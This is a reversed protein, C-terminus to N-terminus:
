RSERRSMDVYAYSGQTAEALRRMTDPDDPSAGFGFQLCTVRTRRARRAIEELEPNTLRPDGGDTLFFVVDPELRMAAALAAYHGTGGLASLDRVFAVAQQKNEQTAPALGRAHFSLPTRNYAIIQFKHNSRLATLARELESEAARLVGLGADGMSQSRDIVFVFSHGATPASGFIGVETPPGVPGGRGRQRALDAAIIAEEGERSRLGRSGGSALSVEALPDDGSVFPGEASPLPVASSLAPEAGADPLAAGLDTSSSAQSSSDAHTSADAPETWYTRDERPTRQTLVIGVNREEEVAVPRAPAQVLLTLGIFVLAHFVLSLAWAPILLPRRAFRELQDVSNM